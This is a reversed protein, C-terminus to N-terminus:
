FLLAQKLFDSTSVNSCRRKPTFKILGVDEADSEDGVVNKKAEQMKKSMKRKRKPQSTSKVVSKASQIHEDDSSIDSGFVEELNNRRTKTVAQTTRETNM